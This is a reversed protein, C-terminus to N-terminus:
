KGILSGILVVALLLLLAGTVIRMRTKPDVITSRVGPRGCTRGPGRGRVRRVAQQGRRM